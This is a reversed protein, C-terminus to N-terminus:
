YISMGNVCCHKFWSMNHPEIAKLFCSQSIHSWYLFPWETKEEWEDENLESLSKEGWNSSPNWWGCPIFWECLRTIVLYTKMVTSIVAYIAKILGLQVLLFFDNLWKYSYIYPDLVFRGTSHNFSSVYILICHFVPQSKLYM